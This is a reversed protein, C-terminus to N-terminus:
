EDYTVLSEAGRRSALGARAIVKQLREEETLSLNLIESPDNNEFNFKPSERQQSYSPREGNRIAFLIYNSVKVGVYPFTFPRIIQILISLIVIRCSIIKM